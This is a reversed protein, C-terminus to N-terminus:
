QGDLKRRDLVKVSVVCPLRMAAQATEQPQETYGLLEERGTEYVVRVEYRQGHDGITM